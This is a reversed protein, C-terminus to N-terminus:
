EAAEDPESGAAQEAANSHAKAYEEWRKDVEAIKEKDGTGEYIVVLSRYAVFFGPQIEIAKEIEEIAKETNGMNSYVVGLNHRIEANEPNIELAKLFYKEADELRNLEVSATGMAIYGSIFYPNLDIAKQFHSLAEENKKQKSLAVGYNYHAETLTPSMKIVEAWTEAAKDDMGQDAYRRALLQYLASMHRKINSDDMLPRAVPLVENMTEEIMEATVQEQPIQQLQQALTEVLGYRISRNDPDKELALKYHHAAQNFDGDEQFRKAKKVNADGCGLVLAMSVALVVMTIPRMNRAM